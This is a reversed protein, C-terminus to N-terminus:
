LVRKEFRKISINKPIESKNILSDVLMSGLLFSWIMGKSGNGIYFYINRDFDFNGIFPMRDPTSARLGSWQSDISMYNQWDPFTTSLQDILAEKGAETPSIDDFTHEYTSGFVVQNNLESLHGFGVLSFDFPLKKHLKGRILEGKVPVVLSTMKLGDVAPLVAGSCLIVKGFQLNKNTTVVEVHEARNKISIVTEHLTEIQHTKLFLEFSSCILEGSFTGAEEIWLGGLENFFYPHLKQLSKPDLWRVNTESYSLEARQYAAAMEENMATRFIGTKKFIAQKSYEQLEALFSFSLHLGDAYHWAPLARRGTAPNLIGIPVNSAKQPSDVNILVPKFGQKILSYCVSIGSFGSGIVAITNM